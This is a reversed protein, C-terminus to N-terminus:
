AWINSVILLDNQTIKTPTDAHVTQLQTYESNIITESLVRGAIDFLKDKSKPNKQSTLWILDKPEASERRWM